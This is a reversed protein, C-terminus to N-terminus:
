CSCVAFLCLIPCFYNHHYANYLDLLYQHQNFCVKIKKEKRKTALRLGEALETPSMPPPPDFTPGPPEPVVGAQLLPLPLRPALSGDEDAISM